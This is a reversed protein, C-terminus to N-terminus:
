VVYEVRKLVERQLAPELKVFHTAYGGIRVVLDAHREPHVMADELAARDLLTLQLQMGGMSFYTTILGRLRERSDRKGLAAKGLRVNLVPTGALLHQPLKAVSSLMATVGKHDRGQMPGSSDALPEGTRRGDPTAGVNLGAHAYTEFMINAPVFRGRECPHSLIASYVADAISVALEDVEDMDNGFRPSTSLACRLEERGEFDTRLTDRMERPTVQAREFVVARLAALSDAVNALGAVNVVSWNLCAGGANFDLGREICDDTLLSRIPQPRNEARSIFYGNLQGLTESVAAVADVLFGDLLAQFTVRDDALMRDLTETLVLPLNLGADLSGVNSRGHVMTETCGGGCWWSLDERSLGLDATRLAREFGEEHYFAPQGNGSALTDFAADWVADPMDERVRLQLSPRYRGESARLCLVTLPNYAAGGDEASGGLAATWGGNAAVNDFFARLLLLAEEEGCDRDDRFYPWLVQDIRGPNDCGDLYYVLNYAVVAEGFSSTPSFPVQQLRAVLEAASPSGNAGKVADLMRAHWARVGTLLDGMAEATVADPCEKVRLEYSDLGESLVRGYNVIGHTYGCGGVTHPTSPLPVKELEDMAARRMVELAALDEECATEVLLRYHGENWALSYSYDPSFAAPAPKVGWPLLPGGGYATLPAGELFRRYARAYRIQPPASPLECFGAGFHEGLMALKRAVRHFNRTNSSDVM